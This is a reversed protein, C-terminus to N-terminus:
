FLFFIRRWLTLYPDLHMKESRPSVKPQGRASRPSVTMTGGKSCVIKLHDRMVIYQYQLISAESELYSMRIKNPLYNRFVAFKMQCLKRWSIYKRLWLSCKRGLTDLWTQTLTVFPSTLPSWLLCCFSPTILDRFVPHAPCTARMSSLLPAYLSKILFGPQFLGIPLGLLFITLYYQFPYELFLFLHM